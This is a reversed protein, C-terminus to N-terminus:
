NWIEIDWNSTASNKKQDVSVLKDKALLKQFALDYFDEYVLKLAGGIFIM